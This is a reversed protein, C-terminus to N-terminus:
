LMDILEYTPNSTLYDNKSIIGLTYELTTMIQTQSEPAIERISAEVLLTDGIDDYIDIPARTAHYYTSLNLERIEGTNQNVAYCSFIIEINQNEDLAKSTMANIVIWEDVFNRIFVEQLSITPITKSLDSVIIHNEGTASDICGLQLQQSKEDSKLYYWATDNPVGQMEGTQFSAIEHMASGDFPIEYVKHFQIDPTAGTEITKVIFGHKTVGDFFASVAGADIAQGEPSISEFIVTSEGTETDIAILRESHKVSDEESTLFDVMLVLYGSKYAAGSDITVDNEMECLTHRDSGDLNAKEIYSTSTWSNHVFFLQDDCAIPWIQANDSPFWSNCRETNHQCNADACLYIQQRTKYDIFVANHSGDANSIIQYFGNKNGSGYVYDECPVVLEFAESNLITSQDEEPTPATEDQSANAPVNSSTSKAALGASCACLLSCLLLIATIYTYRKPM